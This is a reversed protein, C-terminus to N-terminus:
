EDYDSGEHKLSEAYCDMFMDIAVKDRYLELIKKQASCLVRMAEDDTKEIIEDLATLMSSLEKTFHNDPAEVSVYHERNDINILVDFQCNRNGKSM